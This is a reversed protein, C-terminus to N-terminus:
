SLSANFMLLFFFKVRKSYDQIAKHSQEVIIQTRSLSNLLLQQQKVSTTAAANLASSSAAREMSSLTGAGPWVAEGVIWIVIAAAADISAM